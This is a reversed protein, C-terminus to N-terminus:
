RRPEATGRAVSPRPNFIRKERHPRYPAPAVPVGGVAPSHTEGIMPVGDYIVEGGGYDSEMGYGMEVGCGPEAGCSCANGCGCGLEFGCGPEVGCSCAGECGCGPEIVPGVCSECGCGPDCGVACTDCAGAGCGDCGGLTIPGGCPECGCRYGWLNSIGDFVSRCKGCSQGNHNGCQDCPDVCDAPHNIWPDIYLEGCGTCDNCCASGPVAPGCCGAGMPGVCGTLGFVAISLILLSAIRAIVM